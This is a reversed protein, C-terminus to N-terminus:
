NGISTVNYLCNAFTIHSPIYIEACDTNTCDCVTVSIGDENLQYLLGEVELGDEPFAVHEAENLETIDLTIDELKSAGTLILVTENFIAASEIAVVKRLYEGEPLNIKALKSEELIMVEEDDIFLRCPRNVRIKYTVDSM